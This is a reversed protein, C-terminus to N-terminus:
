PVIVLFSHYADRNGGGNGLTWGSSFSDASSDYVNAVLQTTHSATVNQQLFVVYNTTGLNHTVTYDGTSNLVVSWGVPFPTLATGVNSVNGYYITGGFLGQLHKKLPANFPWQLDSAAGGKVTSALVAVKKQLAIIDNQLSQTTPTPM